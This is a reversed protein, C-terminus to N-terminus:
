RISTRFEWDHKAEAIQEDTYEIPTCARKWEEAQRREMAERDKKGFIFNITAGLTYAIGFLCVVAMIMEAMSKVGTSTVLIM